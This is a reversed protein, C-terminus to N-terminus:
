THSWDTTFSVLHPFLLFLIQLGNGIAFTPENERKEVHNNTQLLSHVFVVFKWTENSAM